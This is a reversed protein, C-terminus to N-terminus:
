NRKEAQQVKTKLTEYAEGVLDLILLQADKVNIGMSKLQDGHERGLERIGTEIKHAVLAVLVQRELSKEM